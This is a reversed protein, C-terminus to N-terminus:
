MLHMEDRDVSLLRDIVAELKGDCERLLDENEKEDVFGMSVLTVKKENLLQDNDIECPTIESNVSVPTVTMSEAFDPADTNDSTHEHFHVIDFPNASSVDTTIETTTRIGPISETKNQPLIPNFNFGFFSDNLASPSDFPNNNHPLLNTTTINIYGRGNSGIQVNTNILNRSNFTSASTSIISHSGDSSVKTRPDNIPSLSRPPNHPSFGGPTGFTTFDVFSSIPPLSPPSNLFLTSEGSAADQKDDRSNYTNTIKFSNLWQSFNEANAPITRIIEGMIQNVTELIQPHKILVDRSQEVLSHFKELHDYYLSDNDNQQQTSIELTQSEDEKETVYLDDYEIVIDRGSASTSFQETSTDSVSPGDIQMETSDLITSIKMTINNTYESCDLMASVESNSTNELQTVGVAREMLWKSSVNTCDSEGGSSENIVQQSNTILQDASIDNTEVITLNFKITGGAKRSLIERFEMDTSLTIVDDDEDVYSLSIETKPIISFLARIKSEIESWSSCESIAFRRFTNKYIVKVNVM